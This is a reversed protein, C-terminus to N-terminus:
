TPDVGTPNHACVHMLVIQGNAAKDLDELMGTFDLGKTKPDFYRYQKVKYGVRGPITNHVPWTPNPV